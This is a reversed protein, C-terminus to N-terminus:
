QSKEPKYTTFFPIFRSVKTAYKKYEPYKSASIYETLITSIQFLITLSLAGFISYNVASWPNFNKQMSGLQASLSFSYIVWWMSIEAFFNPHRSYKFLGNILFGRKFNDIEEQTYKTKAGTKQEDVWKYKRTQYHWQQQDAIIEISLFFGFLVANVLDFKNLATPSTTQIYWMPVVLGLLLYNQFFATFFFNVLHFILKKEPYGFMRRVYVWRHDETTCDYGGKRYFNYTLRSGWITVLVSMIILRALSTNENKKISYKGNFNYSTFM